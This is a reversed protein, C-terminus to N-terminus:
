PGATFQGALIDAIGLGFGSLVATVDTTGEAIANIQDPASDPSGDPGVGIYLNQYLCGADRQVIASSIPHLVTAGFAVTLSLVRGLYDEASYIWPSVPLWAV